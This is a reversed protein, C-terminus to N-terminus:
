TDTLKTSMKDILQGSYSHSSMKLREFIASKSILAVCTM